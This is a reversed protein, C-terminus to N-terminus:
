GEKGLLRNLWHEYISGRFDPRAVRVIRGDKYHIFGDGEPDETPQESYVHPLDDGSGWAEHWRNGCCCCDGCGDFYLGIRGARYNAEEADDAEIIVFFGLGDEADFHWRGGSNNQDFTYFM